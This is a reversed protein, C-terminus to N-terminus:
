PRCEAPRMWDPLNGGTCTWTIAGTAPVGVVLADGGSRPELVIKRGNAVRTGYEVTIRGDTASIAVSKVKAANTPPATYGGDFPTGGFANDVVSLKATSALTLGETVRARVAYDQYAPIAVAALIGIIAVVIMLEILTFGQYGRDTVM